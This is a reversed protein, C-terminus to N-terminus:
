RRPQDRQRKKSSSSPSVNSVTSSAVLGKKEADKEYAKLTEVLDYFPDNSSDSDSEEGNAVPDGSNGRGREKRDGKAGDEGNRGVMLTAAGGDEKKKEKVEVDNDDELEAEDSDDKFEEEEASEESDVSGVLDPDTWKPGVVACQKVNNHIQAAHKDCYRAVIEGFTPMNVAKAVVIKLADNWEEAEDDPLDDAVDAFCRWSAKWPSMIGNDAAIKEPTPMKTFPFHRHNEDIPEGSLPSAAVERARTYLKVLDTLGPYFYM